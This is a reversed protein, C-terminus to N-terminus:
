DDAGKNDDDGDDDDDDALVEVEACGKARYQRLVGEDEDRSARM